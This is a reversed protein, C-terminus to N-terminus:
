AALLARLLPWCVPGRAITCAMGYDSAPIDLIAMSKAAARTGDVVARIKGEETYAGGDPRVSRRSPNSADAPTLEYEAYLEAIATIAAPSDTPKIIM